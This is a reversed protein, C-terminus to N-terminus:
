TYHSSLQSNLLLQKKFKKNFSLLSKCDKIEKSLENWLIHGRYRISKQGLTTRFLLMHFKHSNRTNYNYISDNSSYWNKFRQPLINNVYKYMFEDLQLQCIQYVTLVNYKFFINSTHARYHAKAIIRMARKQLLYIRNVFSISSCAWLMNGYSLHPVIMSNYILLLAHSPLVFKLKSMVGIIRAIKLCLMYIHNSRTLKEDITLGLFQM